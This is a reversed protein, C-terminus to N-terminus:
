KRAALAAALAPYNTKFDLWTKGRALLWQEFQARTKFTQGAWHLGQKRIRAVIQSQGSTSTPPKLPAKKPLALYSQGPNVAVTKNLSRMTVTFQHM